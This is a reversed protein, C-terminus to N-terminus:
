ALTGLWAELVGLELAEDAMLGLLLLAVTLVVAGGLAYRWEGPQAPGAVLAVTAPIEWENAM